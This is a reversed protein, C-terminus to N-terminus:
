VFGIQPHQWFLYVAGEFGLNPDADIFFGALTDKLPFFCQPEAGLGTQANMVTARLVTNQSKGCVDKSPGYSM